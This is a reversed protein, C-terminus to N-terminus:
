DKPRWGSSPDSGCAPTGSLTSLRSCSHTDETASTRSAGSHARARWLAACASAPAATASVTTLTSWTRTGSTCAAKQAGEHSALFGEDKVLNQAPNRELPPPDQDKPATRTNISGDRSSLARVAQQETGMRELHPGARMTLLLLIGGWRPRSRVVPAPLTTLTCVAKREPQRAHRSARQIGPAGGRPRWPV